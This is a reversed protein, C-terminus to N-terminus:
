SFAIEIDMIYRNGDSLTGFVKKVSMDIESDCIELSYRQQRSFKAIKLFDLLKSFTVERNQGEPFIDLLQKKLQAKNMAEEHPDFAQEKLGFVQRVSELVIASDLFPTQAFGTLGGTFFLLCIFMNKPRKKALNLWISIM